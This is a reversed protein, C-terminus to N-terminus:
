AYIGGVASAVSDLDPTPYHGSFVAGYLQHPM